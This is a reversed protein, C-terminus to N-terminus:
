FRRVASCQYDGSFWLLTIFSSSMDHCCDHVINKITPPDNAQWSSGKSVMFITSAIWQGYSYIGDKLSQKNSINNSGDECNSACGKRVM